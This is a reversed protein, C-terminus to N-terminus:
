LVHRRLPKQLLEQGTRNNQVNYDIKLILVEAGTVSQSMGCEIIWACEINIWSNNIISIIVTTESECYMQTPPHIPPHTHTHTHNVYVLQEFLSYNLTKYMKM